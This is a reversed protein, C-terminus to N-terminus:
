KVHKWTKGKAIAYITYQHVGYEEAVRRQSVGKELSQRICMVKQSDLKSNGHSEGKCNTGHKVSDAYNDAPTGWVLNTLRNDLSDGNVHRAVEGEAGRFAILVQRHLQVIRGGTVSFNRYGRATVTGNLVRPGRKVRGQSSVQYAPFDRCNKWIEIM